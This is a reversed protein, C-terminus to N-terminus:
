RARLAIVAAMVPLAVRGGFSLKGPNESALQAAELAAKAFTDPTFRAVQKRAAAGMQRREEVNMNIIHDILRSLKAPDNPDFAFGTEGEVILDPVSGCRDSVLVPLGAAMAENVVLGWQETTSALVFAEALGLWAPLHEYQVFGPLIVSDKLGLGEIRAEILPRLPGDGLIVLRLDRKHRAECDAFADLLGLLNKKPVFRASTLLYPATFGLESRLDFTAARAADAGAAFYDNDVCDYGVVILETPMGLAEAYSQHPKGAVFAASGNRLIWGKVTERWWVRPADIEQSDSMIVAPVRYRRCWALAQIVSPGSWGPIFVVDPAAESLAAALDAVAHELTIRRFATSNARNWSYDVSQRRLEIATLNCLRALASLRAVHYPGFNEFILAVKHM